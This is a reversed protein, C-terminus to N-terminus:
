DGNSAQPKYSSQKQLQMIAHLHTNYTSINKACLNENFQVPFGTSNDLTPKDWSM